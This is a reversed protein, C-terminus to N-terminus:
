YESVGYIIDIITEAPLDTLFRIDLELEALEYFILMETFPVVYQVDNISISPGQRKESTCMEKTFHMPEREMTQIGIQVYKQDMHPPVSIRQGEKFPGRYQLLNKM